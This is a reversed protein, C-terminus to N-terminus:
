SQGHSARRSTWHSRHIVAHEIEEEAPFRFIEDHECSTMLMDLVYQAVEFSRYEGMCGVTGGNAVRSKIQAKTTGGNHLRCIFFCELKDVSYISTRGQDMVFKM